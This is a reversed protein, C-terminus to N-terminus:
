VPVTFAPCWRQEERNEMWETNKILDLLSGGRKDQLYPKREMLIHGYLPLYLDNGVQPSEGWYINDSKM